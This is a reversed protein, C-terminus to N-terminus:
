DKLKRVAEAESDCFTMVKDLRMIAFVKKLNPRLGSIVLTGDIEGIKKHLSVVVGLMRSSLFGVHHFDVVLKRVARGDVLEFLDDRLSDIMPGDLISGMRLSAITVNEAQNVIFGTTPM